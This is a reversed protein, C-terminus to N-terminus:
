DEDYVAASARLPDMPYRGVMMGGSRPPRMTRIAALYADTVNGAILHEIATMGNSDAAGLVEAVRSKDRGALVFIREVMDHAADLRRVADERRSLAGTKGSLANGITPHSVGVIQGLVRNSWGSWRVLDQLKRAVDPSESVIPAPIVYDPAFPTATFRRVLRPISTPDILDPLRYGQNLTTATM